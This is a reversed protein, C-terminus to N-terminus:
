DVAERGSLATTRCADFVPSKEETDYMVPQGNRNRCGAKEAPVHIWGQNNRQAKPRKIGITLAFVAPRAHLLDEHDNQKRASPTAKAKFCDAFLRWIQSLCLSCRSSRRGSTQANRNPTCFGHVVTCILHAFFRRLAPQGGTVGRGHSAAAPLMGPLVSPPGAYPPVSGNDAERM